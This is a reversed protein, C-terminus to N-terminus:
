TTRQHPSVPRMTTSHNEPAITVRRGQREVRVGLATAVIHLAEDATPARFSAVLRRGAITPDVAIDLDYWRGIDAAAAAVSANQFTLWGDTWLLAASADVPAVAPTRVGRTILGSQNAGLNVADAQETDATPRLVVRGARVIVRVGTDSAYERVDFTTGIDETVADSTRVRFPHAPDHVVDFVAEGDLLVDRDAAGFTVRVHTAPGLTVQTGDSLHVREAEGRATVYERTSAPMASRRGHLAVGIAIVAALTAAMAGAGPRGPLGRDRGGPQPAIRGEYVRTAPPMTNRVHAWASDVNWSKDAAEASARLQDLRELLAARAPAAAAWEAVGRLESATCIGAIYRDLLATDIEGFGDPGHDSM